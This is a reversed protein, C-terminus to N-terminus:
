PGKTDAEFRGRLEIFLRRARTSEALQARSHVKLYAHLGEVAGAESPEVSLGQKFMWAWFAPDRCLIGASAIINKQARRLSSEKARVTSQQTPNSGVHDRTAAPHRAERGGAALNPENEAQDAPVLTVYYRTGIPASLLEADVDDPHVVFTVNIGDKTQRLAVKLAEFAIPEKVM